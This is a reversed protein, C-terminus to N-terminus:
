LTAGVAAAGLLPAQEELVIHVPFKPMLRAMRGKALFAKMFDGNELFPLIKPAIGGTVFLGGFCLNRLSMNGAESGYIRCFLRLASASTLEGELALATVVAAPDQANAFRAAVEPKPEGATRRVYEYCRVIGPGALVREYSAHPNKELIYKLLGIQEDDQAAFDAHGGESPIAHRRGAVNVLMGEGLGTGAAIVAIGGSEVHEGAQLTRLQGPALCAVGYAASELDNLLAVNRLILKERLEVADVEWPLNPAKVRGNVVPGAIGFCAVEPRIKYQECFSRAIEALGPAQQSSFRATAIPPPPSIRAGAPIGPGPELSWDYLALNTKTGGVDGALVIKMNPM